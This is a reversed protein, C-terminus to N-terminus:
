ARSCARARHRPRGRRGRAPFDRAIARLSAGLAARRQHRGVVVRVDDRALACDAELQHLLRGLEPQRGVLHQHRRLPPPSAAARRDRDARERRGGRHVADLGLREVVRAARERGARQELIRRLGARDAVRQLGRRGPCERERDVALQEDPMRVTLSASTCAAIARAKRSRLSTTSGPPATASAAARAPLTGSAPRVVAITRDRRCRRRRSMRRPALGTPTEDLFEVKGTELSYWAGTVVLGDTAILNEIIASGHRLQDVSARVNATM